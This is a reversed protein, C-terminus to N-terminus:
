FQGTSMLTILIATASPLCIIVHIACIKRIALDEESLKEDLEHLSLLLVVLFNVIGILYLALMAGFMIM